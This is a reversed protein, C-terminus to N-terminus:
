DGIESPNMWSNWLITILIIAQWFNSQPAPLITSQVNCKWLLIASNFESLKFIQNKSKTYSSQFSLSSNTAMWNNLFCQNSKWSLWQWLATSCLVLGKPVGKSRQGIECKPNAEDVQMWGMAM